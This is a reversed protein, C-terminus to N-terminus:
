RNKNMQAWHYLQVVPKVHEEESGKPSKWMQNMKRPRYSTKTVPIHINPIALNGSENPSDAYFTLSAICPNLFHADAVLQCKIDRHMTELM